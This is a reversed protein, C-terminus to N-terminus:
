NWGPNQTLGYNKNIEDPPLPALFWKNSWVEPHSWVFRPNGSKESIYFPEYEFKTPFSEIDPNWKREVRNGNDDIWYVRMGRLPKKFDDVLLRRNMDHFRSEMEFGLECARERLIENILNAKNSTLALSPNATEIDPLGVRARVMNLQQLADTNRGLEALAEAYILYLEAMRLYSYQIPEDDITGQGGQDDSGLDLVYKYTAFGHPRCPGSFSTSGTISFSRVAIDKLRHTIPYQNFSLMKDNSIIAVYLAASSPSRVLGSISIKAEQGERLILGHKEATTTWTYSGDRYEKVSGSVQKEGPVGVPTIGTNTGWNHTEVTFAACTGIEFILTAVFIVIRGFSLLLKRWIVVPAVNEEELGVHPNVAYSRGMRHVM